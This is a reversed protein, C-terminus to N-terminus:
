KSSDTRLRVLTQEVTEHKLGALFKIQQINSDVFSLIWNWATVNVWVQERQTKPHNLDTLDSLVIKQESEGNLAKVQQELYAIELEKAKFFPWAGDPSLTKTDAGLALNLHAIQFLPADPDPYPLFTKRLIAFVPETMFAQLASKEAETLPFQFMVKRIIYLKDNDEAFVAKLLGLEEDTYRMKQKDNKM